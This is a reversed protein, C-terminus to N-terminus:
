GLRIRLFDHLYFKNQETRENARENRKKKTGEKKRESLKLHIRGIECNQDYIFVFQSVCYRGLSWNLLSCM